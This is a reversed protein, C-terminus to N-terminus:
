CRSHNRKDGTGWFAKSSGLASNKELFTVMTATPRCRYQGFAPDQEEYCGETVNLFVPAVAVPKLFYIRKPSQGWYVPSAQLITNVRCKTILM